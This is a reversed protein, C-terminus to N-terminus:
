PKEPIFLVTLGSTVEITEGEGVVINSVYDTYDGTKPDGDMNSSICYDGNGDGLVYGGDGSLYKVCYRGEPIDVGATYYGPKLTITKLVKKTKTSVAQSYKGYKYKTKGKSKYTRFARIRYSYRSNPKLGPDLYKNKNGATAAIKKWKKSNAKKRYIQYGNVGSAKEWSLKVSSISKAAAKFNVVRAPTKVAAEASFIGHGLVLLLLSCTLSLHLAKKMMHYYTM